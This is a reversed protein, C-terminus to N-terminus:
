ESPYALSKHDTVIIFEKRELYHRWREVAMILALFEKEYISLERHKKGLSKSLYAVHQGKQMLVVGIGDLYADAEITFTEEFNPLALVPTQTMAVKIDDFAEQAAPAWVFQKLTLLNTLPKTLIGYGKVFRRYYGTLGMFARVETLTTPVPWHLMAAIKNSDISVGQDSIIHGLYELSNQAFSCKSQKLYFQHKRLQDLVQKLHDIHDELTASYILVDDM